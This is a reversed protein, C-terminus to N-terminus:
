NVLAFNVFLPIELDVFLAIKGCHRTHPKSYQAHPSIRIESVIQPTQSSSASHEM